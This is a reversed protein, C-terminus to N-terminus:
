FSTDMNFMCGGRLSKKMNNDFYIKLKISLSVYNNKFTDKCFRFTKQLSVEGSTEIMVNLREQKSWGQVQSFFNFGKLERQRPRIMSGRSMESEAKRSNM